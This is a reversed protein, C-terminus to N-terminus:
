AFYSFAFVGLMSFVLALKTAAGLAMRLWTGFGARGARELDRQVTYEGIVAGIFAGLLLGPLGFFLGVITGLVASAIARRSAGM